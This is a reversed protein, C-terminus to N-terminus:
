VCVHWRGTSGSNFSKKDPVSGGDIPMKPHIDAITMAVENSMLKGMDSAAQKKSIIAIM